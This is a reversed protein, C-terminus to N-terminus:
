WCHGAAWNPVGQANRLVLTRGDKKVERALIVDTGQMNVKSGTVEIKDGKAFAFQQGAVFDAPGLHVDFTGADTKVTLHTGHWGHGSALQTVEEVTGPMTMETKPDYNSCKGAGRRMQGQANCILAVGLVTVVLFVISSRIKM